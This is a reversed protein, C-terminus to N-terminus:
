NQHFDPLSALTNAALRGRKSMVSVLEVTNVPKSSGESRSFRQRWLALCGESGTGHRVCSVTAVVVLTPLSALACDPKASSSNLASSWVLVAIKAVCHFACRSFYPITNSTEINHATSFLLKTKDVCVFVIALVSSAVHFSFLANPM